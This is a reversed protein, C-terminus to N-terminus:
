LTLSTILAKIKLSFSKKERRAESRSTKIQPRTKEAKWEIKRTNEEFSLTSLNLLVEGVYIANFADM